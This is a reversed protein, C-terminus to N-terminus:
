SFYSSPAQDYSRALRRILPGFLGNPCWCSLWWWSNAVESRRCSGTYVSPSWMSNFTKSKKQFRGSINSCLSSRFNLTLIIKWGPTEPGKVQNQGKAGWKWIAIEMDRRIIQYSKSDHDNATHVFPHPAIPWIHLIFALFQSKPRMNCSFM